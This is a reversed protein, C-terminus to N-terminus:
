ATVLPAASSAAGPLRAGALRVAGHVPARDLVRVSDPGGPGLKRAVAAALEPQNVLFGGALVLPLGTGLRGTIQRALGALAHAAESLIRCAARDGEDALEAVIGSLGAWYRREPRRYFLDLLGEVDSCGTAGLVARTLRGAPLGADHERLAERVADRVVAYGSGDDGLLYGWGGCRAERGDRTVGWAVSGTGSILVAGSDLGAAALILPTDHVVDIRAGPFHEGLLGALLARSAPTDAGAAGACVSEVDSGIIAAIRGLVAGAQEVGLAAVNASTEMLETTGGDADCFLAHTKSGGIDLGLISGRRM